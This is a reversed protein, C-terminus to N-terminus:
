TRLLRTAPVMRPTRQIAGNTAPPPMSIARAKKNSAAATSKEENDRASREFKPEMVGAAAKSLLM